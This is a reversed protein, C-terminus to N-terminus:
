NITGLFESVAENLESNKELLNQHGGSLLKLESGAIKESLAKSADPRVLRDDKAGVILAPVDRIASADVEFKFLELLGEATIHPPCGLSIRSLFLLQAASQRGTFFVYRFFLAHLGTLYAVINFLWILRSYKKAMRLAPALVPKQLPYLFSSGFCTKLANTYPSQQIIIAHLLTDNRNEKCYKLIVSGGMSHGWLVYDEMKLFGLLEKLDRSLTDVSLDSAPGSNGHGPLDILVLHYKGEFFRRQYFWQQLDSNLGHILVLPPLQDSGERVIHYRNGSSAEIVMSNEASLRKPNEADKIRSSLLQSVVYRGFLLALVAASLM